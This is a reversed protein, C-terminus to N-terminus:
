LMADFIPSNGADYRSIQTVDRSNVNGDGNVDGALLEDPAFTRVGSDYRLAQTADRSNVNGDYNVDGYLWLKLQGCDYDTTSVNIPVIKPVYKGPKFIVLKYRGAQITGFSFTQAQMAKGDVTAATITGGTGTDSYGSVTGGKKWQARITADETTSPYLYYQADNKNNWSVVKGRVSVNITSTDPTQYTALVAYGAYDAYTEAGGGDTVTYSVNYTQTITGLDDEAIDEPQLYM